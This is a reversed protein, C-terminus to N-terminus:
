ACIFIRFAYIFIRFKSFAMIHPLMHSIRIKAFYAIAYAIAHECIVPIGVGDMTCSLIYLFLVEAGRSWALRRREPTSVLNSWHLNQRGIVDVNGEQQRVALKLWSWRLAFVSACEYAVYLLWYSCAFCERISFASLMKADWSHIVTYHLVVSCSFASCCFCSQIPPDSVLLTM